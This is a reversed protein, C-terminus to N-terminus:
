CELVSSGSNIVKRDLDPKCIIVSDFEGIDLYKFMNNKELTDGTVVIDVFFDAIGLYISTEVSGSMKIIECKINKSNCFMRTIKPFPTAIRQKQLKEISFELPFMEGCLSISLKNIGTHIIKYDSLNRNELLTNESLFAFDVYRNDLFDLIDFYRLFILELNSSPVKYFCVRSLETYDPVVLGFKSLYKLCNKTLRGDKQIAMKVTTNINPANM